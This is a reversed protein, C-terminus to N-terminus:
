GVTGRVCSAIFFALAAAVFGMPYVPSLNACAIPAAAWAGIAGAIAFQMERPSMKFQWPQSNPISM